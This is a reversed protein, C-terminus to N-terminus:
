RIKLMLSKMGLLTPDAHQPGGASSGPLRSSMPAAAAAAAVEAAVGM